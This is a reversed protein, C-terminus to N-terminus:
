PGPRSASGAAGRSPQLQEGWEWQKRSPARSPHRGGAGAAAPGPDVRAAGDDGGGGQVAREGPPAERDMPWWAGRSRPTLGDPRPRGAGPPRGYRGHLGQDAPYRLGSGERGSWGWRKSRATIAHGRDPQPACASVEQTGRRVAAVVSPGPGRTDRGM